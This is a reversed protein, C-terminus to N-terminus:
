RTSRRPVHPPALDRELRYLDWAARLIAFPAGLIRWRTRTIALSELFAEEMEAGYLRHFEPPLRRLLLRYIRRMRVM